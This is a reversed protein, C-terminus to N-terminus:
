YNQTKVNLLATKYNFVGQNFGEIGKRVQQSFVVVMHTDSVWYYQEVDMKTGGIVMPTSSLNDTELIHIEKPSTRSPIKEFSLYTGELSVQVDNLGNGVAWYEIPYPDASLANLPFLIYILSLFKKM